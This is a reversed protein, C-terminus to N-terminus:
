EGLAALRVMTREYFVVAEGELFQYVHCAMAIGVTHLKQPPISFAEVSLGFAPVRTIKHALPPGVGGLAM